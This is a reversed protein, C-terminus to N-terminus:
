ATGVVVREKDWPDKWIELHQIRAKSQLIDAVAGAQGEGVELAVIAGPSFVGPRDLIDAISHYFSLGGQDSSQPDPDGLLARRDEFDRVSTPLADYEQRSIYPPNSTIVDFPPHLHASSMFEKQRIDALIPTFTNTNWQGYEAPHIPGDRPLAVDCHAANDRALQVATESIDIGCAHTSGPPWLHCLLLPICGSGTCLDLVSLPKQRTPQRLSALRITWDETEPRPILVPARTLLTLPGFPQTGM